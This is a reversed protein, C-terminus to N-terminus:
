LGRLREARERVSADFAEQTMRPDRTNRWADCPMHECDACTALRHRNAACAYIPCAKGPAAHFVRGQCANCGACERRYFACSDCDAGCCTLGLIERQRKKSFGRLVLTYADSLLDRLLDDPVHGDPKVSIWNRKDMYYGPVIDAYQARFLESQVPDAKLTIYYPEGSDDMCLAAFMKGGVHYRIWKWAPQFDSTVGRKALLFDNIWEYRM